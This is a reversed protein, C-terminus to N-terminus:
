SNLRGYKDDYRIIDDEGLYNGSQVEIITLSNKELNTLRHKAGQPIYTSQNELLITKKGNIEINAKGKLVIWHESRHKHKQLSLSALPKVCIEKVQWTSGKEILKYFGWPRFVKRHIKGEPRGELNM